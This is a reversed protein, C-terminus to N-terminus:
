HAVAHRHQSVRRSGLVVAGTVTAGLAASLALQWAAAGGAVTTGTSPVRQQGGTSVGADRERQEIQAKTPHGSREDHEVQAKTRPAGSDAAAAPALLPLLCLALGTAGAAATSTRTM